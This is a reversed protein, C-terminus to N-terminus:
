RYRRHTFGAYQATQCVSRPNPCPLDRCLRTYGTLTIDTIVPHILHTLLTSIALAADQSNHISLAIGRGAQAAKELFWTNPASGIGITFLRNNGLHRQIQQLLVDEYAVSGDTLFVVQRLRDDSAEARLAFNLAPEMETGGDANMQRIFNHARRRTDATAPRATAFLPYYQDDFAIINIYDTDALEDVAYNLAQKAANMSIGAMSGSKDVILILERVPRSSSATTDPPNILVQVYRQGNHKSLFIHHSTDAADPAPWELEIDRDMPTNTITVSDIESELVHTSSRVEAHNDLPAIRANLNMRPGKILSADSFTSQLASADTVKANSYRPTMTTPLKLVFRDDRFDVPILVDLEVIILDDPAISAVSMTFLNPRQQEILGAVQGAEIATDYSHKAAAKTKIQGTITRNGTTITLGRVASQEPLPFQYSGELWHTSNNRFTQKLSVEALLGRVSLEMQADLQIAQEHGHAHHLMLVGSGTQANEAHSMRIGTALQLAMITIYTLMWRSYLCQLIGSRKNRTYYRRM